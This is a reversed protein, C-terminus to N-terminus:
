HRRNSGPRGGMLFQTDWELINPYDRGASPQVTILVSLWFGVRGQKDLETAPKFIGTLGSEPLRANRVTALDLTVSLLDAYILCCGWSENLQGFTPPFTRVRIGFINPWAYVSAQVRLVEGGSLGLRCEECFGYTNKLRRWGRAVDALARVSNRVRIRNASGFGLNLVPFV